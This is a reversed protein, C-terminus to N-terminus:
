LISNLREDPAVRVGDDVLRIGLGLVVDRPQLDFPLWGWFQAGDDPVDDVVRPRGEVM